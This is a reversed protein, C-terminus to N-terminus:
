RKSGVAESSRFQTNRRWSTPQAAEAPTEAMWGNLDRWVAADNLIGVHTANYGRLQYAQRQAAEGLQSRLPIVSDSSEASWSDARDYAFLLYHRAGAPWSREAGSPLHFLGQLFDSGSAMDRWSRIVAPAHRVGMAARDDGTWPTALTFVQRVKISSGSAALDLLMSRTVLGGMSHAVVIMQKFRYRVQLEQLLRSLIRASGEIALGSPYAAAWLQFRKKDLHDAMAAFNGPTGNIGHVLLVPIRRADYPELFYIGAKGQTLFDMPRWLGQAGTQAEWRADRLQTSEGRALVGGLSVPQAGAEPHALMGKLEPDEPLDRKLDLTLRNLVGGRPCNFEELDQVAGWPEGPQWQGDGNQDRFAIVQYRGPKAYFAWQGPKEYWSQEALEADAAEGDVLRVKYLGVSISGKGDGADAIRGSITCGEQLLAQQRAVEKFACGGLSILVLFTPLLVRM